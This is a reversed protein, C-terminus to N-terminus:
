LETTIKTRPTRKRTRAACGPRAVMASEVTVPARGRRTEESRDAPASRSRSEGLDPSTTRARAKRSSVNYLHNASRDAQCDGNRRAEPRRPVRRPRSPPVLTGSRDRGFARPPGGVRRWAVSVRKSELIPRYITSIKRFISWKNASTTISFHPASRRSHCHRRRLHSQRWRSPPAAAM